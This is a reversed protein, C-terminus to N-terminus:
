QIYSKLTNTTPTIHCFRFNANHTHKTLTITGCMRSFPM